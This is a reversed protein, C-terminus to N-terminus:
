PSKEPEIICEAHKIDTKHKMVWGGRVYQVSEGRNSNYSPSIGGGRMEKIQGKGDFAWSIPGGNNMSGNIGSAVAKREWDDKPERWPHAEDWDRESKAYAEDAAKNQEITMGTLALSKAQECMELTEYGRSHSVDGGYTVTILTYAMAAFRM